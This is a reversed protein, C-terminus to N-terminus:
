GSLLNKLMLDRCSGELITALGAQGRRRATAEERPMGNMAVIMGTPADFAGTSAVGRVDQGYQIMRM